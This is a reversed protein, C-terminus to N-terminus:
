TLVRFSESCREDPSNRLSYHYPILMITAACYGLPAGNKGVERHFSSIVCLLLKVDVKYEDKFYEACQMMKELNKM